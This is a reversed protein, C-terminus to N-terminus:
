VSSVQIYAVANNFTAHSISCNEPVYNIRFGFLSEFYTSDWTNALMPAIIELAHTKFYKTCDPLNIILVEGLKKASEIYAPDLTKPHDKDNLPTMYAMCDFIINQPHSYAILKREGPVGIKLM